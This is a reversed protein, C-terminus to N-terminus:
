EEGGNKFNFLPQSQTAIDVMTVVVSGVSSVNCAFKEDFSDVKRSFSCIWSDASQTNRHIFPLIVVMVFFSKLDDM